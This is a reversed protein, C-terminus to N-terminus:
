CVSQVQPGAALDEKQYNYYELNPFLSDLLQRPASLSGVLELRELANLLPKVPMSPEPENIFTGSQMTLRISKVECRRLMFLTASCSLNFGSYTSYSLHSFKAGLGSLRRICERTKQDLVQSELEGDEILDFNMLSLRDLRIKDNFGEVAESLGIKSVVRLTESNMFILDPLLNLRTGVYRRRVKLVELRVNSADLFKEILADMEKVNSTEQNLVITRICRMHEILYSLHDLAKEMSEMKTGQLKILPESRRDEGWMVDICIQDCHFLAYDTSRIVQFNSRLAVTM